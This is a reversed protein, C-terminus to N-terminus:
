QGFTTCRHRLYLHTGGSGPVTCERNSRWLLRCRRNFQDVVSRRLRSLSQSQSPQAAGNADKVTIHLFRCGLSGFTGSAGFNVGYKSVTPLLEALGAVTVSGTSGGFCACENAFQNVLWPSAAPQPDDGAPDHTCGNGDKVTITYSGAALQQLHATVSRLAMLQYTYPGTGGSGAVTVSGTSTGFCCCQNPFKDIGSQQLRNLSRSRSLRPAGNADKVTVPLFQPGPQWVHATASPPGM